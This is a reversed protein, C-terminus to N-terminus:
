HSRHTGIGVRLWMNLYAKNTRILKQKKHQKYTHTHTHTLFTMLETKQRKM